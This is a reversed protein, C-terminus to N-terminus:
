KSEDIFSVNMEMRVHRLINFSSLLTLWEEICPITYKWLIHGITSTRKCYNTFWTLYAFLIYIRYYYCFSSTVNTKNCYLPNRSTNQLLFHCVPYSAEDVSGLTADLAMLRWPNMKCALHCIEINVKHLIIKVVSNQNQKELPQM